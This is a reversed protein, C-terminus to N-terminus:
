GVFPLTSMYSGFNLVNPLLAIFSVLFGLLENLTTPLLHLVVATLFTITPVLRPSFTCSPQWTESVKEHYLRCVM